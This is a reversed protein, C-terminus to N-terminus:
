RICCSPACRRFRSRSPSPFPKAYSGLLIPITFCETKGSGTGTFVVINQEGLLATTAQLQHEYPPDYLLPPDRRTLAALLGGIRARETETMKALVRAYPDGKVYVRTSEVYAPQRLVGADNLLRGRQRLLRPDAIHYTAEIYDRLREHLAEVAKVFV